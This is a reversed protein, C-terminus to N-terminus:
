LAMCIMHRDDFTGTLSGVRYRQTFTNSGATLTQLETYGMRFSNTSAAECTIARDDDAASSTANTVIYSSWCSGAGSNFMQCGHHILAKTGTTAHVQAGVTALNVYTTSTTTQQTLVKDSTIARENVVNASSGSIFWYGETTAKAPATEELDAAIIEMQAGTLANGDTFTPIAQWTM